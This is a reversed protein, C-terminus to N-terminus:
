PWALSSLSRWLTFMTMVPSVRLWALGVQRRKHPLLSVRIVKRFHTQDRTRLHASGAIEWLALFAETGNCPPPPQTQARGQYFYIVNVLPHRPFLHPFQTLLCWVKDTIERNELEPGEQTAQATLLEQKNKVEVFKDLWTKLLHFQFKSYHCRCYRRALIAM